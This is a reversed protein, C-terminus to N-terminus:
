LTKSTTQVICSVLFLPELITHHLLYINYLHALKFNIWAALVLTTKSAPIAPYCQLFALVYRVDATPVSFTSFALVFESLPPQFSFNVSM